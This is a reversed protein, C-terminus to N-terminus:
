LVCSFLQLVMRCLGLVCKHICHLVRFDSFNLAGHESCQRTQTRSGNLLKISDCAQLRLGDIGVVICVVVPGFIREGMQVLVLGWHLGVLELGEVSCMNWILAQETRQTIKGHSRTWRLDIYYM